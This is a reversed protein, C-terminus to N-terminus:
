RKLKKILPFIISLTTGKGSESDVDVKGNHSQVIGHVIALGLGIGSTKEKNSFFPEFINPIDEASIGVGNDSIELKISDKDPNCTRMLIEGSEGVAELANMLIAICAQKIQNPSCHILDRGASFDTLFSINAMKMKHDMLTYANIIVKHLSSPQFDLQDSRSFDLLGKVIEGCRKTEDEIVGLYKLMMRKETDDFEIKRLHKNVLKTYTLVGSLPNNIEHAVSSSLKGLSAIREIHILENQMESLEESKKQVKYELQQSWNQLEDTASQLNDLMENFAISVMRMDNLQNTKIELRTSKDGKSVAESAKIIQHLPNKIRRRTYFMLFSVLILTMIAALIFSKKLNADLEELPIRIVLSGLVTDSESHAHCASTYCSEENLIPSNILLLRYSHGKDSMECKSDMNIIRFSRETYPFMTKIDLHCDKCNPNHSEILDDPFSSHALNNDADYMNVDEIGPMINILDLTNRLAM